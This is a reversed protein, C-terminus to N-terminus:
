GRVMRKADRVLPKLNFLAGALVGLVLVGAAFPIPAPFAPRDPVTAPSLVEADPQLAGATLASRRETLADLWAADANTAEQVKTDLVFQDKNLQVLRDRIAQMEAEILTQREHWNAAEAQAGVLIRDRTAAIQERLANVEAPFITPRAFATSLAQNLQQILPSSLVDPAGDLTGKEQMRALMQARTTAEISRARATAAEASLAALQAELSARAGQDILGTTVRFDLVERRTAEARTRLRQEREALYAASAELSARKRSVQLEMFRSVVTGAVAAAKLPDESRFGVRFTYSRRDRDVVLHERVDRRLRAFGAPDGTGPQPSAVFASWRKDIWAPWGAAVTGSLRTRIWDPLQATRVFEPDRALDHAAIVHDILADSNLTDLESLVASEDLPQRMPAAPEPRGPLGSPRLLLTETAVYVRPLEPWAVAALGIVLAFGLLFRGPSYRARRRGTLLAPHLPLREVNERYASTIRQDMTIRRSAHPALAADEVARAAVEPALLASLHAALTDVGESLCTLHHGPLPLHRFRGCLAQWSVANYLNSRRGGADLGTSLAVVPFDAPAPVHAASARFYADCIRATKEALLREADAPGANRRQRRQRLGRWRTALVAWVQQPSMRAVRGASWVAWMAAGIRRSAADCGTARPDVILSILRHAAIYFRRTNLSSPELLIVIDVAEGRARLLRATEYAVLAGNCYGGLRYPGHARLKLVEPLRAAAMAEITAPIPDDRLGQPTIAVIAEGSIAALPRVYQGGAEFDGHFFFLPNCGDALNYPTTLPSSDACASRWFRLKELRRLRTEDADTATRM